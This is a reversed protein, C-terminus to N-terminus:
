RLATARERAILQTLVQHLRADIKANVRADDVQVERGWSSTAAALAAAGLVVAIAKKM